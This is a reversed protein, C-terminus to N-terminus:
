SKNILDNIKAAFYISKEPFKQMLQEYMKKAEDLHGQSALLDALPESVVSAKKTVSKMVNKRLEKKRASKEEKKIKKDIDKRGFSLLWQSYDSIGSYESLRFKKKKGDKKKGKKKKNGTDSKKKYRAQIAPEADADSVLPVLNNDEPITESELISEATKTATPGPDAPIESVSVEAGENLSTGPEIMAEGQESNDAVMLPLTIVEEAVEQMKDEQHGVHLDEMVDSPPGANENASAYFDGSQEVDYQITPETVARLDHLFLADNNYLVVDSGSAVPMKKALLLRYVMSHPHLNIMGEIETISLKDLEDKSSFYKALSTDM